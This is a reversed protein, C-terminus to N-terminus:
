HERWEEPLRRAAEGVLDLARRFEKTSNLQDRSRNAILAAIEDAFEIIQRLTVAVDRKSMFRSRTTKSANGYKPTCNHVSISAIVSYRESNTGTISISCGLAACRALSLSQSSMSM